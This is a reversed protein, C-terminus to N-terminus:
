SARQHAREWISRAQSRLSLAADPRGTREEFDAYAVLTRGLELEAGASGLVDIARDFLERPGGRDADGPAGGAVATALVRLAAGAVPSAGISEAMALAADAQDRAALLDGM